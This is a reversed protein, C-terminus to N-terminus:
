NADSLELVNFGPIPIVHQCEQCVAYPFDAKETGERVLAGCECPLTIMKKMFEFKAGELATGVTHVEFAQRLSEEVLGPGYRVRIVRAAKAPKKTAHALLQEIFEDVMGFEHM